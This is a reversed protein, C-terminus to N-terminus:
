HVKIRLISELTIFHKIKGLELILCTSEGNDVAHLNTIESPNLDISTVPSTSFFITVNENIKSTLESIVFKQAGSLVQDILPDIDKNLVLDVIAIDDKNFYHMGTNNTVRVLGIDNDLKEVSIVNKPLVYVIVSNQMVLKIYKYKTDKLINIDFLKDAKMM